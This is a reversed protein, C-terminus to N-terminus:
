GGQTAIILLVKDGSNLVKNAWQVKPIVVDNLAVAIGKTDKLRADVLEQLIMQEPIEVSKGNIEIEM